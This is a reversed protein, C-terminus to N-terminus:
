DNFRRRYQIVDEAIQASLDSVSAFKKETRLPFLLKLTAIQGYIDAQFDLVHAEIKPKKLAFTPNIGINAIAKFTQEGLSFECGYVGFKAWVKHTDALDINATPFGITRGRQDGQVVKGTYTFPRGLLLNGEEVKGAEVLERIRSSSIMEEQVLYPTLVCVELGFHALMEADGRAKYGFRQGPGVVVVKAKLGAILIKQIFDEPELNALNQDFILCHAQVPWERLLQMKEARTTLLSPKSEPKFFYRPHPDFTILTPQLNRRAGEAVLAQMIQAHGLHVGDFNGFAVISSHDMQLQQWALAKM